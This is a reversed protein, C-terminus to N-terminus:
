SVSSNRVICSLKTISHIQVNSMLDACLVHCSFQGPSCRINGRSVFPGVCHARAPMGLWRCLASFLMACMSWVTVAYCTCSYWVPVACRHVVCEDFLSVVASQFEVSLELGPILNDANKYSETSELLNIHPNVKLVGSRSIQFTGWVCLKWLARQVVITNLEIGTNTVTTVETGDSMTVVLRTIFARCGDPGKEFDGM